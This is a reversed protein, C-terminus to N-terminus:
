ALEEDDHSPEDLAITPEHGIPRGHSLAPITVHAIPGISVAFLVTGIGVTGGLLFGTVLVTLEIATRVVRISHGRGALGVMLGDRPGPGLAAGIYAGTAVGCLVIGGVLYAWRVSLLQPVPLIRLVADLSLGIIVVNCVTGIGPRMRLPVWLLLVVAGVVISWSGISLDTQRSLGQHFVDWPDLGLDARVLLAESTGFAVLGILLQVLRAGLSWPAAMKRASEEPTVREV